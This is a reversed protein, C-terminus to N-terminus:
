GYLTKYKDLERKLDEIKEDAKRARVVARLKDSRYEKLSQEYLRENYILNHVYFGIQQWSNYMDKIPQSDPKAKKSKIIYEGVLNFNGYYEVEKLNNIKKNM